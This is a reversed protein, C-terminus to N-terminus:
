PKWAAKYAARPKKLWPVEPNIKHSGPGNFFTEFEFYARNDMMFKFMAACYYANDSGDPDPTPNTKSNYLRNTPGWEDFSLTKGKDKAFDLFGKIGRVDGTTKNYSGLFKAWAADDDIWGSGLGQENDYPDVGIVDVVDDGPYHAGIPINGDKLHNWVMKLKDGLTTQYIRAIRAWAEAYDALDGDSAKDDKGAFSWPYGRNAEWGLRIYFLKDYYVRAIKTAIQQHYTDFNGRKCKTFQYKEATILLPIGYAMKIGQNEMREMIQNPNSDTDDIMAQWGDNAEDLEIYATVIDIERGRFGAFSAIAADSDKEIGSLWPLGSRNKGTTPTNNYGKGGIGPTVRLLSRGNGAKSGKYRKIPM